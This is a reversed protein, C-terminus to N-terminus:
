GATIFQLDKKLCLRDKMIIYKKGEPIVKYDIVDAKLIIQISKQYTEVDEPIIEDHSHILETVAYDDTLLVLVTGKELTTYTEIIALKDM